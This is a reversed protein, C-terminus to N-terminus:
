GLFFDPFDMADDKRGGLFFFCVAKKGGGGGGGIGVLFQEFSPNSFGWATAGRIPKEKTSELYEIAMMPTVAESKPSGVM